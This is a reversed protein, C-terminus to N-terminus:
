PQSLDDEISSKQRKPKSKWHGGAGNKSESLAEIMRLSARKNHRKKSAFETKRLRSSRGRTELGTSYARRWGKSCREEKRTKKRPSESRGRRPEPSETMSRVQGSGLRKKLDRRRSPTRSEFNQSVEEFNLRAKIAKLKEQQVKEQQVKESHNTFASPLEKFMILRLICFGNGIGMKALLDQKLQPVWAM